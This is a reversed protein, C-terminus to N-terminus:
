VIHTRINCQGCNLYNFKDIVSLDTNQHVASTFSEWFSQFHIVERSFKPLYLKALKPRVRSETQGTPDLRPTDRRAIESTETNKPISADTSKDVPLKDPKKLYAKIKGCLQLVKDAIAEVELM